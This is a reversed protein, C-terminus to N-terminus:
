SLKFVEVCVLLLLVVGIVFVEMTRTMFYYAAIFKNM